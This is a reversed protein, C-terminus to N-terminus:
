KKNKATKYLKSKTVLLSGKKSTKTTTTSTTNKADTSPNKTYNYLPNGVPTWTKTEQDYSYSPMFNKSYLEKLSEDQNYQARNQILNTIGAQKAESQNAKATAYLDNYTRSFMEANAMDAQMGAQFNTADAKWRGEADYNQKTGYAKNKADLAMAFTLNPDAGSRLAATQMNDVDALQSQINLTQPRIYPADIEPIAYPFVEQSQGIAYMGPIAQSLDYPTREYTGMKPPVFAPVEGPHKESEAPEEEPKKPDPKKKGKFADYHEFALKRDDGLEPRYKGEPLTGTFANYFRDFFQPNNYLAQPNSLDYESGDLGIVEFAKQRIATEDLGKVADVGLQEEVIKREYDQPRLGGYFNTYNGANTNKLRQNSTQVLNEYGFTNAAQAIRELEPKPLNEPVELRWAGKGKAMGPDWKVYNQLATPLGKIDPAPAPSPNKSGGKKMARTEGTSNGNLLQQEAFLKDLVANNKAIMISATNKDVQKSFPNDLIKQYETNDYKKAIQAFTKNSDKGTTGGAFYSNLDMTVAGGSQMVSALNASKEEFSMKNFDGPKLHDSFVRTGDPLNTNIGGMEMDGVSYRDSHDYGSAIETSGDPLILYENNEIEVNNQGYEPTNTRTSIKAGDKAMIIPQYETGGSTTRGYMWNYDYTPKSDRQQISRNLNQENRQDDRYNLGASIGALGLSALDQGNDKLYGMADDVFESRVKETKQNATKTANNIIQAKQISTPTSSFYETDALVEDQNGFTDLDAANEQAANDLSGPLQNPVFFDEGTFPFSEKMTNIEKQTYTKPVKVPNLKLAAEQKDREKEWDGQFDVPKLKAGQVDDMKVGASQMYKKGFKSYLSHRLM